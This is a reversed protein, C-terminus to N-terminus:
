QVILRWEFGNSRNISFSKAAEKQTNNMFKIYKKNMKQEDHRFEHTDAILFDKQSLKNM